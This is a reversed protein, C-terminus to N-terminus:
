RSQFIRQILGKGPKIPSANAEADPQVVPKAVVPENSPTHSNASGSGVPTATVRPSHNGGPEGEPLPCPAAKRVVSEARHEIAKKNSDPMTSCPMVLKECDMYTALMAEWQMKERQSRCHEFWAISRQMSVVEQLYSYVAIAEQQRQRLLASQADLIDLISAAGKSYKERVSEYNQEAARLARRSLRINPHEAFLGNFAALARQEIIQLARERQAALQRILAEQEGREAKRLGGEYLSYSFSFAALTEGQTTFDFRETGQGSRRYRILGSIEPLFFSREIRELEIGLASLAFDFSALEPSAPVSVLRLFDGFREADDARVIYRNLVDDMFFTEEDKLEIDTFRWKKERPQGLIRNMEIQANRVDAESQFVQARSSAADQEWRFVESAETAGINVRLRALQLNNETLRLNEKQIQWLARAALYNLYAVGASEMADLKESSTNLKESAVSELASGINSRITDNFLAQRLEVGYAGVNAHDPTLIPNIRDTYDTFSQEVDISVSPRKFSEAQNLTFRSIVEQEKQIRVDANGEAALCMAKVLTIEEGEELNGSDLFEATLAIEYTPYWEATDASEQNIILRDEVPLYVPLIGTDIGLLIQHANLSARRAIADGNDPALGAMAGLRVDPLGVMSLTVAGQEALRAFLAEREPPAIGPLVSVYVAEASPPLSALASGPGGAPILFIRVGLQQELLVKRQNVEALRADNRLLNQGVLAYISSEGSLDRLAAIDAAVRQPNTIFSYNPIKSTGESTIAKEMLDSFEVAGGLVPTKRVADDLAMAANTAIYGAAIVLDVTEDQVAELLGQNLKVPDGGANVDDFVINYSGEAVSELETKVREVFTDFYWSVDDRIIVVKRVSNDGVPPPLEPLPEVKLPPLPDLPSASPPGSPLDPQVQATVVPYLSVWWLYAALSFIGSFSWKKM